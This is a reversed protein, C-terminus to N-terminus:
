GAGARSRMRMALAQGIWAAPLYALILDVASYWAPAPLMVVNAIGGALVLAGVICAPLVSRDPALVGAILAGLLTGLSHALFPFLFHKPEFLPMSAQLGEITAVDAGAPPAIVQGSIIILGMNVLSGAVFGLVVALLMRLVKVM